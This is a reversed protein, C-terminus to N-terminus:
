TQFVLLTNRNLQLAHLAASLLRCHDISMKNSQRVDKTGFLALAM